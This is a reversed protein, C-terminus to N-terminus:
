KADLFQQLASIHDSAAISGYGLVSQLYGQCIDVGNQYRNGYYVQSPGCGATSLSLPPLAGYSYPQATTRKKRLRVSTGVKISEADFGGWKLPIDLNSAFSFEKDFNYATSNGFTSLTYNAPDLFGPAR